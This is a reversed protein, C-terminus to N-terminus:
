VWKTILKKEKDTFGGLLIVLLDILWWIGLGGCTLLMLLGTGVKGVYFRHVGFIGFFLCLLLAPLERKESM